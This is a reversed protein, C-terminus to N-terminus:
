RFVALSFAFFHSDGAGEKRVSLAPVHFDLDPGHHPDRFGLSLLCCFCPLFASESLPKKCLFVDGSFGHCHARAGHLGSGRCAGTRKTSLTQSTGM